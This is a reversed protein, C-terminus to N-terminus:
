GYHRGKKSSVNYNAEDRLWLAETLVKYSTFEKQEKEQPNRHQQDPHRQTRATEYSAAILQM